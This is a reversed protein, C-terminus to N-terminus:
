ILAPDSVVVVRRNALRMTYVPGFEESWAELITHVNDTDLQSANGLLLSGKPGPLDRPRRLTPQEEKPAPSDDLRVWLKGGEVKSEFQKLCQTGPGEREGSQCDFKWRHNRCILKGNELEGEALLAGQHPCRGEFVKLGGENNLVVLEVGGAVAGALEDDALQLAPGADSWPAQGKSKM